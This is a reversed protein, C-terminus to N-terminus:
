KIRKIVANWCRRLVRRLLKFIKLKLSAKFASSRNLLRGSCNLTFANISNVKFISPSRLCYPFACIFCQKILM